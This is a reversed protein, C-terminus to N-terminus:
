ALLIINTELQTRPVYQTTLSKPDIKVAVEGLTLKGNAKGIFPKDKVSIGKFIELQKGNADLIPKNDVDVLKVKAVKVNLTKTNVYGVVPLLIAVDMVGAFIKEPLSMNNWHKAQDAIFIAGATAHVGAQLGKSAIISGATGGIAGGVKPLVPVLYLAASAGTNAWELGGIDSPNISPSFARAAPFGALPLVMGAVSLQKNMNGYKANYDDEAQKTAYMSILMDRDLQRTVKLEKSLEANSMNNFAGTTIYAQAAFNTYEYFDPVPYKKAADVTAKLLRLNFCDFAM